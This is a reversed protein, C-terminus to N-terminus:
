VSGSWRVQERSFADTVRSSAISPSSSHVWADVVVGRLHRPGVVCRHLGIGLRGARHVLGAREVTTARVVSILGSVGALRAGARVEELPLTLDGGIVKLAQEVNNVGVAVDIHVDLTLSGHHGDDALPKAV